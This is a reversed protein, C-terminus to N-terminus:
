AEKKEASDAKLVELAWGTVNRQSWFVPNDKSNWAKCFTTKYSESANDWRDVVLYYGSASVIQMSVGSFGNNKKMSAYIKKLAAKLEDADTFEREEEVFLFTQIIGREEKFLKIKM